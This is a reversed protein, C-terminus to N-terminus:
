CAEALPAKEEGRIDSQKKKLFYDQVIIQFADAAAPFILVSFILRLSPDALGMLRFLSEVLVYFEVHFYLLIISVIFRVMAVIALWAALQELYASVKSQISKPPECLDRQAGFHREKDDGYDGIDIGWNRLLIPRMMSNAGWCLFTTFFCDTVILMFYFVCPDEIQNPTVLFNAFYVTQLINYFKGYIAAAVQKSGDLAWTLFPRRPTETLWCGLMVLSCWFFIAVQVALGLWGLL